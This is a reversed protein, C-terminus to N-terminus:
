SAARVREEELENEKEVLDQRLKKEIAKSKALQAKVSAMKKRLRELEESDKEKEDM